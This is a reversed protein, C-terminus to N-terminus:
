WFKFHVVLNSIKKTLACSALSGLASRPATSCFTCYFGIIVRDPTLRAVITTAVTGARQQWLQFTTMIRLAHEVRHCEGRGSRGCGGCGRVGHMDHNNGHGEGRLGAGDARVGVARGGVAITGNGASIVGGRASLAGSRTGGGITHL